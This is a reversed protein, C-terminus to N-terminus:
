EGNNEKGCDECPEAEADKEIVGGEAEYNAKKEFWDNGKGYLLLPPYGLPM